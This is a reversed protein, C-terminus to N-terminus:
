AGVVDWVRTGWNDFPESGGQNVPPIYEDAVWIDGGNPNLAAASYDGWRPRPGDAPPLLDSFSNHPGSGVATTQVSSFSKGGDKMFAYGTSPNVSTSTMSFDLVVTGSSGRLLSPYLLYTGAVAVYGQSAVTHATPNIVFWAAGDRASPDTGINLATNLATYLRLGSPTNALEVQEMRSDDPNLFQEAQVLLGNPCSVTVGIPQCTSSGDGTSAAPVPFSYTESSIVRGTLTVTGSGSTINKDGKVEWLGLTNAINNDNGFQDFPFSNVLYETNSANGFAPQLALVPDSDLSVPGFTVLNITASEAVLQSKSLDFLQAGAFDENAGCFQNVTLAFAHPDYGQHPFDPFCNGADSTDLQYAAYGNTNFVAIDTIYAAYDPSTTDLLQGIETFYYSNTASDYQCSVDGASAPDSFMDVLTDPGYLLAGSTSYVSWAENVPEVVVTTKGPVKLPVGAAKLASASGVCLGQDPPTVEFGNVADSDADSVGNFNANVTGQFNALPTNSVKPSNKGTAAGPKGGNFPSNANPRHRKSSSISAATTSLGATSDSVFDDGVPQCIVGPINITSTQSCEQAALNPKLGKPLSTGTGAARGVTGATGTYTATISKPAAHVARALLGNPLVIVALAAVVAGAGLFSLGVRLSRRSLRM